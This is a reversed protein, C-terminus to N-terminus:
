FITHKIENRIGNELYLSEKKLYLIRHTPM